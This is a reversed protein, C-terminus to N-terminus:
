QAKSLQSHLASAVFTRFLVVSFAPRRSVATDERLRCHVLQYRADKTVRTNCEIAMASFAQVLGLQRSVLSRDLLDVRWQDCTHDSSTREKYDRDNQKDEKQTSAVCILVARNVKAIVFLFLISLEHGVVLGRSHM